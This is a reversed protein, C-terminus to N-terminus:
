QALISHQSSGKVCKMFILQLNSNKELKEVFFTKPQSVSIFHSLLFHNNKLFKTKPVLLLSPDELSDEHVCAFLLFFVNKSALVNQFSQM